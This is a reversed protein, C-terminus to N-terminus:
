RRRWRGRDDSRRRPRACGSWAARRSSAGRRWFPAQWATCRRRCPCRWTRPARSVRLRLGETLQGPDNGAARLVKLRVRCFAARGREPVIPPSCLLLIVDHRAYCQDRASGTADALRDGDRQHLGAALHRRIIAAVVLPRLFKGVAGADPDVLEVDAIELRDPIAHRLDFGVEAGDVDQDVVGADGAVAGHVPHRVVVPVVDDPGVKGGAEVARAGDDFPHARAFNPRM